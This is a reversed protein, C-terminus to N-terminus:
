MKINIKDTKLISNADDIFNVEHETILEKIENKLMEITKELNIENFM